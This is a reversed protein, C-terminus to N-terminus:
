VKDEVTMGIPVDGKKILRVFNHSLFIRRVSHGESDRKRVKEILYKKQIGHKRGWATLSTVSGGVGKPDVGLAEAVKTTELGTAHGYLVKVLKLAADPLPEYVPGAWTKDDSKATETRPGKRALLEQYEIAEKVSDVEVSEVTGDVRLKLRISVDALYPLSPAIELSNETAV